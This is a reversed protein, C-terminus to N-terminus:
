YESLRDCSERSVCLIKGRITVHWSGNLRPRHSMQVLVSAQARRVHISSCGVRGAACFPGMKNEEELKRHFAKLTVIDPFGAGTVHDGTVDRERGTVTVTAVMVQQSGPDFGDAGAASSGDTLAVGALPAQVSEVAWLEVPLRQSDSRSEVKERRLSTIQTGFAM